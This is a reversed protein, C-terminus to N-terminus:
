RSELLVPSGHVQFSTLVTRLSATPFTGTPLLRNAVRQSGVRRDELDGAIHSPERCALTLQQPPCQALVGGLVNGLELVRKKLTRGRVAYRGLAGGLYEPLQTGETAIREGLAM